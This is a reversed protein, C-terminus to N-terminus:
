GPSKILRPCSSCDSAFQFPHRAIVLVRRAEPQQALALAAVASAHETEPLSECV